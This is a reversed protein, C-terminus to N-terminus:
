SKRKAEELWSFFFIASIPPDIKEEKLKVSLVVVSQIKQRNNITHSTNYATPASAM